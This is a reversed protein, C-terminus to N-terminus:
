DGRLSVLTGPLIFVRSGEEDSHYWRWFGTRLPASCRPCHAPEPLVYDTSEPDCGTLHDLVYDFPIEAQDPGCGECADIHREALRLTTLEVRVPTTKRWLAYVRETKSM